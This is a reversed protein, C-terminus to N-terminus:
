QCSMFQILLWDGTNHGGTQTQEKLIVLSLLKSNLYDAHHTESHSTKKLLLFGM